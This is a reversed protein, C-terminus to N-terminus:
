AESFSTRADRCAEKMQAVFRGAVEPAPRQERAIRDMLASAVVVGDAFAAVSRVQEASSIGFGVVVPLKTTERVRYVLGEIGTSLSSRAGTVGKLSICYIFGSSQEAIRRVRERPTTPAVMGVLDLGAEVCAKRLEASEDVPLDPVIVGDVGAAAAEAAFSRDGLNLIPNYYSMLVLPISLQGRISAVLELASRLSAGRELALQNVRQLTAGDALPDSFPIGLEVLDAGSDELAFLMERVTEKSPYGTMLYPIIAVENRTILTNFASAIRGM